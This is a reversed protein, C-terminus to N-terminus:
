DQNLLRTLEREVCRVCIKAVVGHGEVWEHPTHEGCATCFSLTRPGALMPEVHQGGRM